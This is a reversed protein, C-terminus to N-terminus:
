IREIRMRQVLHLKTMYRFNGSEHALQALFHTLRLSNDLIGFTRLHVNAALGLEEARAQSAGLKKFVATLTGRGIIGDDHVGVAKQLKKIQALNM